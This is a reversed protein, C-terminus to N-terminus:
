RVYAPYYTIQGFQGLLIAALVIGPVWRKLRQSNISPIKGMLSPITYVLTGALIAMVPLPTLYYHLISRGSITIFFVEIPLNVLAILILPHAQTFLQK